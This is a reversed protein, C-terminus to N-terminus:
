DRVPNRLLIEVHKELCENSAKQSYEHGKYENWVDDKSQRNVPFGEWKEENGGTSRRSLIKHFRLPPPLASIATIYFVIMLTCLLRMPAVVMTQSPLGHNIRSLVTQNIKHIYRM